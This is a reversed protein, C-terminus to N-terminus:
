ELYYYNCRFKQYRQHQKMSVEFFQTWSVQFIHKVFNPPFLSLSEFIELLTFSQSATVTKTCNDDNCVPWKGNWTASSDQRSFQTCSVIENQQSRWQVSLIIIGFPTWTHLSSSFKQKVSWKSQLCGLHNNVLPVVQAYLWSLPHCHYHEM